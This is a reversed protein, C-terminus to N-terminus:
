LGFVVLRLKFMWASMYGLDVVLLCVWLFVSLFSDDIGAVPSRNSFGCQFYKYQNSLMMLLVETYLWYFHQFTAFTFATYLYQVWPCHNKSLNFWQSAKLKSFALKVQSHKNAYKLIIGEAGRFAIFMAIIQAHFLFPISISCVLSVFKSHDLFYLSSHECM